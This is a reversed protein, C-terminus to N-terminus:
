DAGGQDLRRSLDGYEFFKLVALTGIFNILAYLLALDLFDPRGNLFGIVAIILVTKTGFMNMALVRDYVTPGLIARVLALAMTVLIALSAVVFMVAEPELSV